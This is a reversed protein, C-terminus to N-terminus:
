PLEEWAAVWAVVPANDRVRLGPTGLVAPDHRIVVEAGLNRFSLGRDRGLIAGVSDVRAREWLDIVRNVWVLGHVRLRADQAVILSGRGLVIIGPLTRTRASHAIDLSAGQRLRLTGETVLTGEAIEVRQGESLAVEGKIYLVGQFRPPQRGVTLYLLLQEFQRQSYLSDTKRELDTDRVYKGAAENLGANGTNAAAKAQFFVRDVEPAAPFSAPRVVVGEVRPGMLRLQRIDVRTSEPGFTLDAGRALLLRATGPSQPIRAAGSGPSDMPGPGVQYTVSPDNISVDAVGLGIGRGAAIHVWAHDTTNEGYPLIVVTARGRDLRVQSAAYLAAQLAPSALHVRARLRRVVGAVEAVSTVIIAGGTEDAASITVRGKGLAVELVESYAVPRWFRGPTGDPAVSELISLARHVGGEALSLAAASRLRAGARTQQQNMMWILSSSSVAVALLVLLVVLLAMGRERHPDGGLKGAVKISIM